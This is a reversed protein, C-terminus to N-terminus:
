SNQTQDIKNEQNKGNQDTEKRFLNEDVDNISRAIFAIGGSKTVNAIFEKQEKSAYAGDRKVEIALFKGEYVGLIDSVGKIHHTNNSRRFVKKTPDYIGTSQNKWCFVKKIKLFSLIQNEIAKENVKTVKSHRAFKPHTM